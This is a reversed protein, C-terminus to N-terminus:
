LDKIIVNNKKCWIEFNLIRWFPFAINTNINEFKNKILEANWIAKTKFSESNIIENIYEKMPSSNMYDIFPTEFGIKNKNDRIKEPLTKGITERLIKKTIGNKYKLKDPISFAYELIRYDLFPSRMEISQYMSSVDEYHLISNLGINNIHEISYRKLNTSNFEFRYNFNLKHYNKKVFSSSLVDIIKEQYKARLFSAKSKSLFSKFIQKFIYNSSYNNRKIQRFEKFYNIPNINFIDLLYYGILYKEYGYFAEDAGQGNLVVKIGDKKIEELIEQHIITNFSFVPQDLGYIIDELENVIKELNPEIIKLNLNNFKASYEEAIKSEDRNFNNFRVTYANLQNLNLTHNQILKLSTETIISSDLGGSLLIGIPVDSQYRIKISDNFLKTLTDNISEKPQFKYKDIELKWYNYFKIQNEKISLNTGSQLEYISKYFTETNNTKNYGFALYEFAKNNNLTKLNEVESITKTESSFIFYDKNYYYYFPKKGLRDRSAFISNNKKDYIVFSWMGNFHNVCNEGWRLYSKLLIETDSKTKFSYGESILIEKLDTFNYIEGNFVIVLQNEEDIMPQNSHHDLDIISLRRFGFIINSHNYVDGSDPGRRFLLDNMKHVNDLHKNTKVESNFFFYGNIGCM